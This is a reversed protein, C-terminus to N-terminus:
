QLIMPPCSSNIKSPLENATVLSPDTKDSAIDKASSNFITLKFCFLFFIDLDIELSSSINLARLKPTFIIKMFCTM